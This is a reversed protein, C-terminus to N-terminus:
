ASVAYCRRAPIVLAYAVREVRRKGVGVPSQWPSQWDCTPPRGLWLQANHLSVRITSKWKKSLGRGAIREFDAPSLEGAVNAVSVAMTAVNMEGVLDGCVVNVTSAAGDSSNSAMAGALHHMRHEALFGPAPPEHYFICNKHPDVRDCRSCHGPSSDRRLTTNIPRSRGLSASSSHKHVIGSAAAAEPPARRYPLHSPRCPDQAAAPSKRETCSM